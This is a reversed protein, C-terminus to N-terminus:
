LYDCVFKHVIFDNLATDEGFCNSITVIDYGLEKYLCYFVCYHGCVGSMISQLKKDNWVVSAAHKTLYKDFPKIPKEGFSDFYEARAEKDFYLVIWHDGRQYHPATNCV